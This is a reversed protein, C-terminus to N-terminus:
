VTFLSIHYSLVSFVRVTSSKEALETEQDAVRCRLKGIEESLTANSAALKNRMEESVAVRSEAAAVVMAANGAEMKRAEYTMVVKDKEAKAADAIRRLEEMQRRVDEMGRESANRVEELREEADKREAEREEAQAQREVEWTREKLYLQQLTVEMTQYLATALIAKMPVVGAERRAIDARLAVVESVFTKREEHMAKLEELRKESLERAEAEAAILDSAKGNQGANSQHTGTEPHDRSNPDTSSQAGPREGRQCSKGDPDDSDSDRSACLKDKLQLELAVIRRRRISFEARVDEFEDRFTTSSVLSQKDREAYRELQDSVQRVRAHLEAMVRDRSNEAGAGDVQHNTAAATDKGEIALVIQATLRKLASPMEGLSENTVVEADLMTAAIPSHEPLLEGNLGLRALTLTLDERVQGMHYLAARPAADLVAVLQQLEDVKARLWRMDREQDAIKAALQARQFAVLPAADPPDDPVDAATRYHKAPPGRADPAGEPARKREM